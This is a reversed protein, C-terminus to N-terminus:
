QSINLQYMVIVPFSGPQISENAVTFLCDDTEDGCIDFLFILQIYQLKEFSKLQTLDLTFIDEPSFLRIRILEVTSFQENKKKQKAIQSPVCEAVTFGDKGYLTTNDENIAITPQLEEVLNKLYSYEVAQSHTPAFLLNNNEQAMLSVAFFTAVICVFTKLFKSITTRKM